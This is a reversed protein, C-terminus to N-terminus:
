LKMKQNDFIIISFLLVILFIFLNDNKKYSEVLITM